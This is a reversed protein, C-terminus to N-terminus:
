NSTSLPQHIYEFHLSEIGSGDIPIFGYVSTNAPISKAFVSSYFPQRYKKLKRKSMAWHAAGLLAVSELGDTAWPSLKSDTKQPEMEEKRYTIDFDKLTYYVVDKGNEKERGLRVPPNAIRLGQGSYNKVVFQPQRLFIATGRANTIKVAILSLRDHRNAIGFQNSNLYQLTIGPMLLNVEEKSYIM